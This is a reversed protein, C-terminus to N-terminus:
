ELASQVHRAGPRPLDNQPVGSEYALAHLAAESFKEKFEARLEPHAIRATGDEIYIDRLFVEGFHDSRRAPLDVLRKASNWCCPATIRSPRQKIRRTGCNFRIARM